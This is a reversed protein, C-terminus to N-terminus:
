ENRLSEMPNQRAAKWTQGSVSLLAILLVLSGPLAFLWWNMEIRYAFNKLWESMIYNAIPIAIVLAILILKMYEKSLLMLISSVTAGLVKRIGIEKTRGQAIFTALGLLGLSAIFIAIGTFYQTLTAMRKENDYLRAYGEDLFHYELPADPAYQHYAKQLQAIAEQAQGPAIRVFGYSAEEPWNMFILPQIPTHMSNHHFDQVVGVLEGEGKWSTIHQGIPDKLQMYEVFAENVMYQVSSDSPNTSFGRGEVLPIQMTELFESDIMMRRFWTDDEEPKGTWWVDSTISEVDFPLVNSRSVNLFATHQKLGRQLADFHEYSAANLPFYIVQEKDMGLQKQQVYQIQLYITLTGIMMILSLIFQFVVLGERLWNWQHSTTPKGKLIQLPQYGSLFISPYLGSFLITIMLVGLGTLIFDPQDLPIALDKETIQNFAPLLLQVILLSLFAAIIVMFGTESMFQFVLWVRQAGITKRIGVEKARKASRATTLNIFNICAILLILVAIASFLYVYDISGKGNIILSDFNSNLYLEPFPFFQLTYNEDPRYKKTFPILKDNIDQMAVHDHLQVFLFSGHSGWKNLWDNRKLHDEFPILYDFQMSSHRPHNDVIGTVQYTREGYQDQLTLTEGLPNADAFLKKALEPSLVISSLDQLTTEPNGRLVPFTFLQLFSPDVALGKEKFYTNNHKIYVEEEPITRAIKQVEPLDKLFDFWNSPAYGETTSSGDHFSFNEIVMFLHQGHEHFQDYMLEGRVWIFILLSCSLGLTLGAINIISFTKQKRFNRLTIKFINRFM